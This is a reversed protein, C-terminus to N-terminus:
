LSTKQRKKKRLKKTSHKKKEKKKNKDSHTSSNTNNLASFSDASDGRKKEEEQKIAYELLKAVSSMTTNLDQDIAEVRQNLTRQHNKNEQQANTLTVLTQELETQKHFSAQNTSILKKISSNIASVINILKNTESELKSLRQDLDMSHIIRTALLMCMGSICITKQLHHKLNSMNNILTSNTLKQIILAINKRKLLWLKQTLLKACENESKFLSQPQRSTDVIFHKM